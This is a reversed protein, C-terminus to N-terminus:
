AADKTQLEDGGAAIRRLASQAATRVLISRDQTYNSVLERAESGGVWGLGECACARIEAAQTRRFLSRRTLSRKFIPLMAEGGAYGLSEYFARKETLPRDDFDPSEIATLLAPIAVRGAMGLSRAATMRIRPDVDLLGESLADLARGTGLKSLGTLSDKRVHFDPHHMLKKLPGLAADNQSAGLIGVINRVLETRPDRLYPLFPSVDGKAKLSLAEILRRRAPPTQLNGLVDCM